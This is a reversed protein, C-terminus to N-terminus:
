RKVDADPHLRNFERLHAEALETEGRYVLEQIYRYWADPDAEEVPIELATAEGSRTVDGPITLDPSTSLPLLPALLVGAAVGAALVAPWGLWQSRRTRTRIRRATAEAARRVAADQGSGPDTDAAGLM